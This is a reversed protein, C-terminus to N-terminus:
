NFGMQKEFNNMWALSLFEKIGKKSKTAKVYCAKTM